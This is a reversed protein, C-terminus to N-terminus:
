HEENTIHEKIMSKAVRYETFDDIEMTEIGTQKLVKGPNRIEKGQEYSVCQAYERLLDNISAKNEDNIIEKAKEDFEDKEIKTKTM